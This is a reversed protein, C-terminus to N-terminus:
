SFFDETPHRAIWRQRHHQCVQQITCAIWNAVLEDFYPQLGSVAVVLGNCVFSGAYPTDGEELLAPAFSQVFANSTGVRWAQGAKSLAIERYNHKGDNNGLFRELLIASEVDKVSWREFAPNLIIFHFGDKESYGFLRNISPSLIELAQEACLLLKFM